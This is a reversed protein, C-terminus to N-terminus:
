FVPLPERVPVWREAPLVTHQAPLVTHPLVQEFCAWPVCGCTDVATGIGEEKMRALLAATFNTQLLPEGGSVTLGGEEGYFARDELVLTCADEVTVTQGYLRLANGLCADECRGCVVCMERILRHGDATFEPAGAPCVRVCEGCDICKHAYYGLQPVRAEGEPNHCWVCRLPCGKLFLTTRLGPGDHVAFRKVDMLLGKPEM